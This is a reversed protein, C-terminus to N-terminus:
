AGPAATGPAAPQAPPPRVHPSREAPLNANAFLVLFLLGLGFFLLGALTSRRTVTNWPRMEGYDSPEILGSGDEIRRQLMRAYARAAQRSCYLSAVGAAAGALLVGWAVRLMWLTGAAPMPAIDKLFTVSALIAASGGVLIIRDLHEANRADIEQARAFESRCTDLKAALRERLDTGPAENV